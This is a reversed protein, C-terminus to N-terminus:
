TALYLNKRRRLRGDIAHGLKRLTEVPYTASLHDILDDLKEKQPPLVVAIPDEPHRSLWVSLAKYLDPDLRALDRRELGRGLWESYVRSIFQPANERRNLDRTKWQEPATSPLDCKLSTDKAPQGSLMEALLERAVSEADERDLCEERCADLFAQKARLKASRKADNDPVPETKM